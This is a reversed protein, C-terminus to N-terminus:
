SPLKAISTGEGKWAVIVNSNFINMGAPTDEKRIYTQREIDAGAEVMRLAERTTIAEDPVQQIRMAGRTYLYKGVKAQEIMWKAREDILKEQMKEEAKEEIRKALEGWKYRAIWRDITDRKGIKFENAIQDVSSYKGSLYASKVRDRFEKTYFPMINFEGITDTSIASM